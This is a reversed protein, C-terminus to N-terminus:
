ITSKNSKKDVKFPRQSLQFIQIFSHPYHFISSSVIFTSESLKYRLIQLRSRHRHSYHNGNQNLVCLFCQALRSKTEVPHLPLSLDVPIWFIPVRAFAKSSGLPKLINDLGTGLGQLGWAGFAWDLWLGAWGDCAGM